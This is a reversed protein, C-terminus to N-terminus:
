WFMWTYSVWEVLLPRDPIKTLTSRLPQTKKQLGNCHQPWGIKILPKIEARDCDFDCTRPLHYSELVIPKESGCLTDGTFTNKLGLVAGIDGAPIEDVDERRDAYMRLLRGIREKRGKVPNYVMDGMKITGSYVRFYALRGVYPDTVIKFVVASLPANDETPLELTQDSDPVNGVVPPIDTPSPLYDIVADLVLQVGKNRLSYGCFVPTARNNLM